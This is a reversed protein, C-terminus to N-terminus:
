VESTSIADTQNPQSFDEGSDSGAVEPDREKLNLTEELTV